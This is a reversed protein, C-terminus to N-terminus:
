VLFITSSTAYNVIFMKCSYSFVSLNTVEEVPRGFCVCCPCSLSPFDM